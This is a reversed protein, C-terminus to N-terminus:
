LDSIIYYVHNCSLIAYDIYNYLLKIHSTSISVLFCFFGRKIIIHIKDARSTKPSTSPSVTKELNRIYVIKEFLPELNYEGACIRSILDSAYSLPALSKTSSM